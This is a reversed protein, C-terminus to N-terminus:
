RAPRLVSRPATRRGSGPTGTRRRRPRRPRSGDVPAPPARRRGTRRGGAPAGSTRDGRHSRSPRSGPEVPRVPEHAAGVPEDGSGGAPRPRSPRRSGSSRGPRDRWLSPRQPARRTAPSAAPITWRATESNSRGSRTSAADARRDPGVVVLHPRLDGGGQGLGRGSARHGPAPITSRLHIQGGGGLADQVLVPDAADLAGVQAGRAPRRPEVGVSAVPPAPPLPQDDLTPSRSAWSRRRGLADSPSTAAPLLARPRPESGSRPPRGAPRAPGPSPSAPRPWWSRHRRGADPHRPRRPGLSRPSSRRRARRSPAGPGRGRPVEEALELAPRGRGHRPAGVDDVRGLGALRQCPDARPGHGAPAREPM